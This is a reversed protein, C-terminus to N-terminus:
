RHRATYTIRKSGCATSAKIAGRVNRSTNFTGTITTTYNRLAVPDFTSSSSRFKGGKVPIRGSTNVTQSCGAVKFAYKLTRIAGGRVTLSVARGQSTSGKFAGNSPPAAGGRSASSAGAGPNSLAGLALTALAVVLLGVRLGQVRTGGVRRGFLSIRARMVAEM